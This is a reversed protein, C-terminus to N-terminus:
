VTSLLTIKVLRSPNGLENEGGEVTAEADSKKYVRATGQSRANRKNGPFVNKAFTFCFDPRIAQM